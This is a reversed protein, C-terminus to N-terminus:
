TFCYPDYWEDPEDDDVTTTDVEDPPNSDAPNDDSSM